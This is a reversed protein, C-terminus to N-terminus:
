EPGEEGKTGVEEEKWNIKTREERRRREIYTRYNV